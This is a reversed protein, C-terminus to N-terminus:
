SVSSKLLQQVQKKLFFGVSCGSGRRLQVIMSTSALNAMRMRMRMRMKMRIAMRIDDDKDEDEDEDEDEIENENENNAVRFKLISIQLIPECGPSLLTVFQGSSQPHPPTNFKSLFVFM